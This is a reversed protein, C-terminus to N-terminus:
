KKAFVAYQGGLPLSRLCSEIFPAKRYLAQPLYLFVEKRIISLGAAKMLETSESISLLRANADVPTRRVIFQTIPNLPNHELLCFLGGPKLVRKIEGTLRARLDTSLVHHFVCVATAFDFTESEYPVRDPRDQLRVNLDHAHALMESSLDCGAAEKFASKGLRLLDGFGCGIDLWRQQESQVGHQTLFNKLLEWKRSVFFHSGGGFKERLPDNLLKQYSAAYEDFEVPM